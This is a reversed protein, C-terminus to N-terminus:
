AVKLSDDFKGACQDSCFAHSKLELAVGKIYNFCSYCIERKTEMGSDTIPCFFLDEAMVDSEINDILNNPRRLEQLAEQFDRKNGEEDFVGAFLSLGTPKELEKRIKLLHARKIGVELLKDDTAAKLKDASNIGVALLMDIYQTLELREFLTFIDSYDLRYSERIKSSFMDIASSNLKESDDFLKTLIYGARVAPKCQIELRTSSVPKVKRELDQSKTRNLALKNVSIPALRRKETAKPLKTKPATLKAKISEPLPDLTKIAIKVAKGSKDSALANSNLKM